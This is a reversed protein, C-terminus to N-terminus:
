RLPTVAKTTETQTSKQQSVGMHVYKSHLAVGSKASENQIQVSSWKNIHNQNSPIRKTALDNLTIPYMDNQFYPYNNSAEQFDIQTQFIPNWETLTNSFSDNKNNIGKLTYNTFPM